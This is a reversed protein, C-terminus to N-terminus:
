LLGIWSTRIALIDVNWATTLAGEGFWGSYIGITPLELAANLGIRDVVVVRIWWTPVAGANGMGWWIVFKGENTRTLRIWVDGSVLNVLTPGFIFGHNTFGSGDNSFCGVEGNSLLCARIYRNTDGSGFQFSIACQGRPSAGAGSMVWIRASVDWTQSTDGLPSSDRSLFALSNSGIPADISLIGSDWSATVTGPQVTTWGIGTMPEPVLGSAISTPVYQSGNYILAQNNSPPSNSVSINQIGIVTANSATGSLDGGVVPDASLTTPVYQAGDYVLVQGPIPPTNSIPIGTIGIVEANSCTGSLDGGLPPDPMATLSIWSTGDFYYLEGANYAIDSPMADLTPPTTPDFPLFYRRLFKSTDMIKRYCM